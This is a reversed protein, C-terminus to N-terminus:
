KGVAIPASLCADPIKFSNVLPVAEQRIDWCLQNVLKRIAKTKVGEMYGQELFWGKNKDIQSLAFLQCLKQLVAICGNDQVLEIKAIFQELIIREVYAFGVQVLHHQSVNFADFSDMGEDIHRKLRKAASTLIDRERYKFASLYFDFDLLHEEDTNRVAIPNKESLSTKAQDAVYSLIGFLNMNSFEQKFETLRSKAVLQMLVTNDGEFTTYVETDAKLAGIRNESLYGKGGCCERCEQLTQTANWTAFSKLGAALAEIEQMDEETRKLFRDTLYQLSFHLAYTNALLPMLRRQHTRYNLIPVEAAGEPGFQKRQDGYRIAITLGSKTASLGSRPIGIRGGVLTGLMTFFRRNDSAIPSSFKGDETVSAFRDLLNDKPIVVQNFHIKGNDVGNLGIKRGCDEITIGSLTNGKKDRLPVVFASVGYDKGDIILKAFVTAMQGHLAANGIYEKKAIESPTNIVFTKTSHNYTGTTEISRVNSGHGTETMAFCGPLELSGIEKLYKKHHKETGLFYVSMGWLGFQVGFKIVLSLDHYSLTEMIAFYAAMDERGGFEKPYAMAGYGQAALLHCWQLVRERYEKLNDTEIYKFEPDSLLAKVKTIMAKQDADLIDAMSDISFTEQTIQKQTQTGRLSPSFNFVSERSIVGLKEELLILAPKMAVEDVKGGRAIALRIGLMSLSQRAGDTTSAVTKIEQLWEKFQDPSPPSAPSVQELLFNKEDQNLWNIENIVKQLSRLESPTLVADEWVTYFFPLLMFLNPNKKLLPSQLM